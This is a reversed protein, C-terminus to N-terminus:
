TSSWMPDDVQSCTDDHSGFCIEFLLTWVIFYKYNSIAVM